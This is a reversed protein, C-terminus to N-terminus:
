RRAPDFPARISGPYEVWEFDIRFLAPPKSLERMFEADPTILAPGRLARGRPIADLSSARVLAPACLLGLLFGRRRM